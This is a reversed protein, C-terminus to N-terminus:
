LFEPVWLHLRYLCNGRMAGQQHPLADQPPQISLTVFWSTIPKLFGKPPPPSPLCFVPHFLGWNIKKKARASKKPEGKVSVTSGPGLSTRFFGM